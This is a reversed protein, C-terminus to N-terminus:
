SVLVEYTKTSSSFYGHRDAQSKEKESLLILRGKIFQWDLPNSEKNFAKLTQDIIEQPSLYQKDSDWELTKDELLLTYHLVQCTCGNHSSYGVYSYVECIAASFEIDKM